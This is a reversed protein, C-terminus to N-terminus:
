TIDSTAKIYGNNNTERRFGPRTHIGPMAEIHSEVTGTLFNLLGLHTRAVYIVLARKYQHPNINELSMKSAVNDM